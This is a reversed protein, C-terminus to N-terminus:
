PKALLSPADEWRVPSPLGRPEPSAASGRRSTQVAPGDPLLSSPALVPPPLPGAGAPLWVGLGALARGERRFWLRRPFLWVPPFGSGARPSGTHDRQASTWARVAVHCTCGRPPWPAPGSRPPGVLRVVKVTVVQVSHKVVQMVEGRATRSDERNSPSEEPSLRLEEKQDTNGQVWLHAGWVGRFALSGSISPLNGSSPGGAPPLYSKPFGGPKEVGGKQPRCLPLPTPVCGQM